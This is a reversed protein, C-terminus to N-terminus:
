RTLPEVGAEVVLGDRLRATLLVRMDTPANSGHGRGHLTVRAVVHDPEPEDISDVDITLEAWTEEIDRLWQEVGPRGRYITDELMARLPRVECDDTSLAVLTDADRESIATICRRVIEVNTDPMAGVRVACCPPSTAPSRETLHMGTVRVVTWGATAGDLEVILRADRWLCDVQIWRGPELELDANREPRPLGQDEVLAHFRNELEERTIGKAGADL